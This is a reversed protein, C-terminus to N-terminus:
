QDANSGPSGAPSYVKRLRVMSSFPTAWGNGRGNALDPWLAMSDTPMVTLYSLCGVEPLDTTVEKGGPGHRQDGFAACHFLFVRTHADPDARWNGPLIIGPFCINPFM